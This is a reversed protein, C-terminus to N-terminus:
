RKLIKLAKGIESVIFGIEKDKLERDLTIRISGKQEKLPLGLARLVSDEKQKKSECASGASISIGRESLFTVLTDADVPFSVNINSYIRDKRSGNLKGGLKELKVIFKDRSKKIKAKNVKNQLELAKAFGVIGSVNETGSRLGREQGGGYILPQIRVGNRVYLLGIGKPAGIKHGSASLLDVKDKLVDIRLKSFSQVADTHFLVGYKRCIEGIKAVPQVSGIINNVHMISVVLVDLINNKIVNELVSLKVIGSKDVPIKVVQLGKSKLYAAVEVISPHEIASIIVLKRDPHEKALGQIALNNAETAGSTFIIEEPKANIEKALKIRASNMAKLAM